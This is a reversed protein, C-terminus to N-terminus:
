TIYLLQLDSCMHMSEGAHSNLSNSSVDCRLYWFVDVQFYYIIGSLHFNRRSDHNQIYMHTYALVHKRAYMHTHTHTRTRAHFLTGPEWIHTAAFEVSSRQYRTLQGDSQTATTPGNVNGKVNTLWRSAVKSWSTPSKDLVYTTELQKLVDQRSIWSAVWHWSGWVTHAQRGASFVCEGQRGASFVCEGQRGASFM